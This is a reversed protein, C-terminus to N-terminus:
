WDSVKKSIVGDKLWTGGNTAYDYYYRVVKPRGWEDKGSVFLSLDAKNDPWVLASASLVADNDIWTKPNDDGLTGLEWGNTKNFAVEQIYGRMECQGNEPAVCYIRIEQQREGKWAMAAIQRSGCKVKLKGNTVKVIHHEFDQTNGNPSLLYCLEHNSNVFFIYTKSHYEIAAIDRPLENFIRSSAM